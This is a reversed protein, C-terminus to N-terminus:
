NTTATKVLDLADDVKGHKLLTLAGEAAEAEMKEQNEKNTEDMLVELFPWLESLEKYFGVVDRESELREVKGLVYEAIESSEYAELEGSELGLLIVDLIHKYIFNSQEQTLVM